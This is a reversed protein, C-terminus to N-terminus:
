RFLSLPWLCLCSCRRVPADDARPVSSRLPRGNKRREGRSATTIEHVAVKELERPREVTTLTTMVCLVTRVSVGAAAGSVGKVGRGFACPVGRAAAM